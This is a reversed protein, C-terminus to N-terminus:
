PIKPTDKRKEFNVRMPHKETKVLKGAEFVKWTGKKAGEVYKGSYIINGLADRYIAEGSELDNKYNVEELVAGNEAMKKSLGERKGKSYLTSEALSGNTYFVKKEGELLGNKYTERMMVNKSNFHYYVWEGEKQKNRLYGESVKSKHQNFFIAHVSGDAKFERTAIVDGKQTNDYYYFVGVEKGHEFTGEYRKRNSNEYTGKWLGHRNGKDDYQNIKQALATLGIFLAAFVFFKKM